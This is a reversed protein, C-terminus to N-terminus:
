FDTSISSGRYECKCLPLFAFVVYLYTKRLLHNELKDFHCEHSGFITGSSKNGTSTMFTHQDWMEGASESNFTGKCVNLNCSFVKVNRLVIANINLEDLSNNMRQVLFYHSCYPM